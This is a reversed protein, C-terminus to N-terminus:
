LNVMTEAELDYPPLGQKIRNWALLMDNAMPCTVRVYEKSEPHIFAIGAAHLLARRHETMRIVESTTGHLFYSLFAAEDEHYLKDGVLPLGAHAAHIRIQNTRGTKPRAQLLSYKGQVDLVRFWTEASLGGPVVWKKIRIASSELDGIPGTAVWEEQKPIGRCVALYEKEVHREALAKSLALRTGHDGGCLVIGSTEKDLRHVAAWKEGIDQSLIHALTNYRYAGNEHMPLNGPKFVAMVQGQKWIPFVNRDVEPEAQHPHFFLFTDQDKVKYSARVRKGCVLLWGKAVRAQWGARSLFPYKQSLYLDIRSGQDMLIVPGGLSRYEGRDLSPASSDIEITM